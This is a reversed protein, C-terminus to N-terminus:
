SARFFNLTSTDRSCTRCIFCLWLIILGSIQEYVCFFFVQPSSGWDPTLLIVHPFEQEESMVSPYSYTCFVFRSAM